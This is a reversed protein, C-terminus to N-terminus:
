PFPLLGTTLTFAASILNALPLITVCNLKNQAHLKKELFTDFRNLWRLGAGRTNKSEIYNVLQVLSTFAETTYEIHM